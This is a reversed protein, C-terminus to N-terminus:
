ILFEWECRSVRGLGREFSVYRSEDKSWRREREGKM